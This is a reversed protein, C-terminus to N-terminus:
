SGKRQTVLYQFQIAIEKGDTTIVIPKTLKSTDLESPLNEDMLDTEIGKVEAIFDQATSKAKSISGDLNHSAHQGEGGQRASQPSVEEGTGSSINGM